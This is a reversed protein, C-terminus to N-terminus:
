IFKELEAEEEPIQSLDIERQRKKKGDKKSNKEEGKKVEKKEEEKVSQPQQEEVKTEIATDSM